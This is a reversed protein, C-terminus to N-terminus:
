IVVINKCNGKIELPVEREKMNVGNYCVNEIRVNSIEYGELNDERKNLVVSPMIDDPCNTLNINKVLVNQIKYGASETYSASKSDRIELHIIKGPYGKTWNINFREFRINEILQETQSLVRFLGSWYYTHWHPNGYINFPIHILECDHIHINAIRDHPDTAGTAHGGIQFPRCSTWFVCNYAEYNESVPVPNEYDPDALTPISDCSTYMCFNDDANQMYSNSMIVNCTNVANFGDGNTCNSFGKIRDMTINRSNRPAVCRFESNITIGVLEINECGSQIYFSPLVNYRFGAYLKDLKFDKDYGYCREITSFVGLGEFKINKRGKMVVQAVIVAGDDAYVYTNDEKINIVPAGFEDLKIHECNDVTYYGPTFRIVNEYGAPNFPIEDNAFLHLAGFIDGDPEITIMKYGDVQFTIVDGDQRYDINLSAPLIHFSKAGACKVTVKATGDYAFNAFYTPTATSVRNIGDYVAFIEDPLEQQNSIGDPTLSTYVSLEKKEEGVEVTVEYKKSLLAGKPAKEALLM